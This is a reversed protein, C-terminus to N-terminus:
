YAKGHNEGDMKLYGWTQFCGYQQHSFDWVVVQSTKMVRCIIPFVVQGEVPSNVSKLVMLLIVIAVTANSSLMHIFDLKGHFLGDM